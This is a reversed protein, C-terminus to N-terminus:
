CKTNILNGILERFSSRFRIMEEAPFQRIVEQSEKDFIKVVVDAIDDNREFRISYLGNETLGKIQDLVEEPQIDKEGAPKAKETKVADQEKRREANQDKGNAAALPPVLFKIENGAGAAEVIM